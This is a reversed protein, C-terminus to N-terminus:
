ELEITIKHKVLNKVLNLAYPVIRLYFFVSVLSGIINGIDLITQTIYTYDSYVNSLIINGIYLIYLIMRFSFYLFIFFGGFIGPSTLAFFFNRIISVLNEELSIDYNRSKITKRLLSLVYPIIRLYYHLAVLSGITRGLFFFFNQSINLITYADEHFIEDYLLGRSVLSILSSLFIFIGIFLTPSILAFIFNQFIGTLSEEVSHIGRVSGELIEIDDKNAWYIKLTQDEKSKLFIDFLLRQEIQLKIDNVRISNPKGTDFKSYNVLEPPETSIISEIIQSNEDVEILLDVNSVSSKGTNEVVIHFNVINFIETTSIRTLVTSPLTKDSAVIPIKEISYTLRKKRRSRAKKFAEAALGLLITIIALVIGQFLEEM